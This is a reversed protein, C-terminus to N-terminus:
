KLIHEDTGNDMQYLISNSNQKIHSKKIYVKQKKKIIKINSLTQPEPPPIRKLEEYNNRFVTNIFNYARQLQEENTAGTIIVAGSQFISITVKKCKGDGNGNGKGNCSNECNCVGDQINTNNDYYKTNVGPYICPEYTSYINYKDVLLEHLVDRKIKFGATYDSNILHVNIKDYKINERNNIAYLIEGNDTKMQIEKISNLLIDLAKEACQKSKIGTMQIRGNLFLKCNVEKKEGKESVRIIITAQNYFTKKKKPKNELDKKCYGRIPYPHPPEIKICGENDSYFDELQLQTSILKLDVENNFDSTITMTSIRLKTPNFTEM